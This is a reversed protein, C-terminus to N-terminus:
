IRRNQSEHTLAEIRDIRFAEGGPNRFGFGLYNERIGRGTLARSQGAARVPFEYSWQAARGFVTAEGVGEGLMSFYIASIAKKLTTSRLKTATRIDSVIPRGIDLDGGFAFLGTASGAHTPTISHFDFNTYESVAGTLTNLVITNM